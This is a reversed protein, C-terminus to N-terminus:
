TGNPSRGRLFPPPARPSNPDFARRAVAASATAELPLAHRRAPASTKSSPAVSTLHQASCAPCSAEIHAHHLRTGAAEVHARMEPGSRAEAAPALFAVAIQAAAALLLALRGVASRHSHLPARM